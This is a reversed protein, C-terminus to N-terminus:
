RMRLVELSEDTRIRRLIAIATRSVIGEKDHIAEKVAEIASSDRIEGLAWMARDRVEEHKDKLAAKLSSM